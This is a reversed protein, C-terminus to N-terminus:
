EEGGRFEKAHEQFFKHYTRVNELETWQRIRVPDADLDYIKAGKISLFFPSHTSIIFQCNFFRASDEIYQKLELQREPSLSNEPEDLIYLGNEEIKEVFYRFASEGNSQERVNNMLHSKVFKSQTKSRTENMKKLRDYDDLSKLQFSAYKTDLYDDFLEERKEDVSENVSRLTLVFDFVDDSTIIRKFDPEEWNKEVSCYNLYEPFFSSKNYLSDREAEIKEAIVNLATTKGSGNGGYLVTIPEFDIRDFQRKSLIQFPYFSTYVTRKIDIFVAFEADTDPFTISNLYMIMVGQLNKTKEVHM